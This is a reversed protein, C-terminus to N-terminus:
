MEIESLRQALENYVVCDYLWARPNECDEQNAMNQHFDRLKKLMVIALNHTQRPNLEDLVRAAVAFDDEKKNAELLDNVSNIQDLNM